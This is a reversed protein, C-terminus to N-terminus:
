LKLGVVTLGTTKAEKRLFTVFFTPWECTGSLKGEDCVSVYQKVGM